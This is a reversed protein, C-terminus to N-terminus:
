KAATAPHQMQSLENLFGDVKEQSDVILHSRMAYHGGGCLQACVIEYKGAKVPRFWMPVKTGPIADQAVRMHKISVCHIVDKSTIELVIPRQTVAFLENKSVVDDKSHEDAPDLGLPNAPTVLSAKQRGFQGDPGPYHFNWAYQEGIARVRLVEGQEPAEVVRKGWLPIAFGLLLAAEILVVSFEAHTSAHGTIGHYDAKPNRSKRFRYIAITLFTGWGLFLILMFWHCFELMHDVSRGHESANYVINLLKNLM